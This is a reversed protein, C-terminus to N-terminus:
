EHRKEAQFFDAFAYHLEYECRLFCVNNEVNIPHYLSIFLNRFDHQHCLSLGTQQVLLNFQLFFLSRLTLIEFSDQQLSLPLVTQLRLLEKARVLLKQIKLFTRLHAEM